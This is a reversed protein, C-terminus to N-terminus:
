SPDGAPLYPPDPRERRGFSRGRLERARDEPPISSRRELLIATERERRGKGPQERHHLHVLPLYGWPWVNRFCAREWFENDEGGWGVFAEDFGGLSYFADRDVAVSGGGELNQIVYEPPGEIAAGELVRRTEEEGLYFVFRKLNLVEYGEARRALLEAAYRGPVLMDNDHFVFLQGRAARAGVNFAWSRSYPMGPPITTHIGRVWEPLRGLIEPEASQEVVVCEISTEEQGAVTELVRLLLPLRELGRHGIVFSVDPEAKTLSPAAARGTPWEALARAMLRRGLRPFVECGHLRSTWRGECEAGLGGPGLRITDRRNRVRIWRGRGGRLFRAYRPRDHLAAGLIQRPSRRM